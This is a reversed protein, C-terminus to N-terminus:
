FFINSVHVDDIDDIKPWKYIAQGGVTAKHLFIKTCFNEKESKKAVGGLIFGTWMTFPMCSIVNLMPLCQFLQHLQTRKLNETKNALMLSFVIPKPKFPMQHTLM